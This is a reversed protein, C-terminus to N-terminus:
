YSSYGGTDDVILQSENELSHAENDALEAQHQMRLAQQRNLITCSQMYSDFHIVAEGRQLQALVGAVKDTMSYDQHGYDTGERTVYEEILGQLADESLQDFPILM